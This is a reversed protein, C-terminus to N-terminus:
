AVRGPRRAQSLLRPDGSVTESARAAEITARLAALNDEAAIRNIMEIVNSIRSTPECARTESTAFPADTDGTRWVTAQRRQGSADFADSRDLM